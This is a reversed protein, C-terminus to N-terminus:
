RLISVLVNRYHLFPYNGAEESYYFLGWGFQALFFVGMLDAATVRLTKDKVRGLMIPFIVIQYVVFFFSLRSAAAFSRTLNLIVVGLVFLNLPLHDDDKNQMPRRWHVFCMAITVYVLTKLLQGSEALSTEAELFETIYGQYRPPLLPSAFLNVAGILVSTPILLTGVLLSIYLTPSHPKTIFRYSLLVIVWYLIASYHFSVSLAVLALFTPVRLRIEKRNLLGTACFAISVACVERMEVFMNLFYAPLLIYLLLSLKVHRTYNTIGLFVFFLTIFSYAFFLAHYDLGMANLVRSLFSFSPELSVLNPHRFDEYMQAYREMDGTMAERFGVFFLLVGLAPVAFFRSRYLESQFSLLLYALLLIGYPLLNGINDIGFQLNM